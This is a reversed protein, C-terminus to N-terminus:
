KKIKFKRLFFNSLIIVITLGTYVPEKKGYITKYKNRIAKLYHPSKIDSFSHILEVFGTKTKFTGTGTAEVHSLLKSNKNLIVKYGNKKARFIFETDSHYQPLKTQNYFGVKKFVRVPLLVGKGSLMDVELIGNDDPNYLEGFSFVSKSIKLGLYNQLIFASNEIKNNDDYFLNLSGQITNHDAYKLLQEFTDRLLETDNNLTYIFDSDKATELAKKVAMNTAGAWWLNGDGPLVEVDPYNEKIIESTGDTSGDDCVIIKYNSYNQNYISEICNKTYEIRNHVPICIYIKPHLNM